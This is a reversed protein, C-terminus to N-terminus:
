KTSVEHEVLVVDVGLKKIKEWSIIVEEGPGLLGWLRWVGARGPLVLAKVKGEELDLELDKVLGLRRGDAVNIVDRMKLDSVRLM